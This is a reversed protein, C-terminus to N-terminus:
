IINQFIQSGNQVLFSLLCAITLPCKGVKEFIDVYYNNGVKHACILEEYEKHYTFIINLPCTKKIRCILRSTANVKIACKFYFLKLDPM